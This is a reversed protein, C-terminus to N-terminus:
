IWFVEGVYRLTGPKGNWFCRNVTHGKEETWQIEINCTELGDGNMNIKPVSLINKKGATECIFNKLNEMLSDGQESYLASYGKPLEIAITQGPSIFQDVNIGTILKSEKNLVNISSIPVSLGWIQSQAGVYGIYYTKSSENTMVVSVGAKMLKQNLEGIRLISTVLLGEPRDNPNEQAKYSESNEYDTLREQLYTKVAAELGDSKEKLDDYKKKAEKYNKYAAATAAISLANM